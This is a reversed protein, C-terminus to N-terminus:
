CNEQIFARGGEEGYGMSGHRAGVCRHLQVLIQAGGFLLSHGPPDASFTGVRNVPVVECDCESYM